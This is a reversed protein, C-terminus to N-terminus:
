SSILGSQRVCICHFINWKFFSSSSPYQLPILPMALLCSASPDLLHDLLQITLLFALLTPFSIGSCCRRTPLDVPSMASNSPLLLIIYMFVHADTFLLSSVAQSYLVVVELHSVSRILVVACSQLVPYRDTPAGATDGCGCCLSASVCLFFVPSLYHLTSYLLFHFM